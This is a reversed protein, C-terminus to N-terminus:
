LATIVREFTDDCGTATARLVIVNGNLDAAAFDVKYIGSSVETVASLAGAGFAGGDISRTVAVTKGTAPAHNTSDTMLFEFAALATNKKVNGSNTLNTTTTITGVIDAIVDSGTAGGSISAGYGAGKGLVRMAYVDVGAGEFSVDLAISDTAQAVIGLGGGATAGGKIKM